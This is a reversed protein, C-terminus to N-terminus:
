TFVPVMAEEANVVALVKAKLLPPQLASFTPGCPVKPWTLSVLNLCSSVSTFSRSVERWMADSWQEIVVPKPHFEQLVIYDESLLRM